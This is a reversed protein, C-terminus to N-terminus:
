HHSNPNGWPTGHDHEEIKINDTKSLEGDDTRRQAVFAEDGITKNERDDLIEKERVPNRTYSESPIEEGLMRESSNAGRAYFAGIRGDDNYLGFSQDRKIESTPDKLKFAISIGVEKLTGDTRMLSMEKANVIELKSNDIVEFSGDANLGLIFSSGNLNRVIKYQAFNMGLIDNMTNYTTIKEGANLDESSIFNGELQKQDFEVKGNEIKTFSAVEEEPIGLNKATEELDREQEQLDNLSIKKDSNPLNKIENQEKEIVSLDLNGQSRLNQLTLEDLLVPLLKNDVDKFFEHNIGSESEPDNYMIDYVMQGNETRNFSVDIVYYNDLLIDYKRLGSVKEVIEKLIEVQQESSLSEFLEKKDDNM